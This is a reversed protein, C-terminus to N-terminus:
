KKDGRMRGVTLNDSLPQIALRTQNIKIREEMETRAKAITEEKDNIKKQIKVLQSDKAAKRAAFWVLGCVCLVFVLVAGAFYLSTM